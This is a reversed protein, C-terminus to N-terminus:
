TIAKLGKHVIYHFLIVVVIIYLIIIHVATAAPFKIDGSRTPM